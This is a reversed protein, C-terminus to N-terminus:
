SRRRLRREDQRRYSAALGAAFASGDIDLLRQIARHYESSPVSEDNLWRNVTAQRVGLRDGLEVQVLKNATRYDSLMQGVTPSTV